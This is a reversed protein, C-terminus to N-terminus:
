GTCISQEAGQCHKVGVPANLGDHDVVDPWAQEVAARDYGVKTDRLYNPMFIYSIENRSEGAQDPGQRGEGKPSQVVKGVSINPNDISNLHEPLQLSDTLVKYVAIM